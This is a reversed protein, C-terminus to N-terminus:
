AVREGRDQAEMTRWSENTAGRLAIGDVPLLISFTTGHREDSTRSHFRITGGNKELLQRTVWLGIGTGVDHKTTFLPEFIHPKVQPRIGSGNDSVSIRVRGPAAPSVRIKIIGQSSIADIANALLNSFIQRLEGPIATITIQEPAEIELHVQKMRLKNRFLEIVENLVAAVKFQQPTATERYFGLAQRTIHSVRQLEDDAMDLFPKLSAPCDPSTRAIFVANVVAALPNNIEHALSLAMRGLAAIKESRVLVEQTRKQDQIDTTTGFWLPDAGPESIPVARGLHWRYEGDRRLLRYETEFIGHTAVARNWRALSAARDDPHVANVWGGNANEQAGTGTYELWKPSLYRFHTQADAVWVMPPINEAVARFRKESERLARETRKLETIDAFSFRLLRREPLHHVTQHFVLTGSHVERLISHGGATRLAELIAAGDTFIAGPRNVAFLERLQLRAATNAYTLHGELDTEVIPNPNLEPFSALHEREQEARKHATIDEVVAIEYDPRGVADRALSVTLRAWVTRGQKHLFRKEISYSDIEGNAMRRFPALDAALDDPHTIQPWPTSRMEERTYGLMNCLADNADMWRADSFNVRGMGVAAGQFAARFKEESARLQEEVQKRRSIDDAIAIFHQPVGAGNRLLSVTLKVWVQAGSSRLYRKEITYASIEGELLRRAQIEDTAADEPHTLDQFRLRLLEERTYGLIRCYADNLRLWHGSLAVHAVGLPSEDFTARYREESQRLADLDRNHQTIDRAAASAGVIRGSADRLPSVTLQVDIVEGDKRRRHAEIQSVAEGGAVRQLITALDDQQGPPLLMSVNRGVTEARTYGYLIEAGRNWSTITGDLTKGLIADDSDEIIAALEHSRRQAAKLSGILLLLLLAAAAQLGLRTLDSDNTYSFSHTPQMVFYLVGATSLLLTLTGAAFDAIWAVLVAALVGFIFVPADAFRSSAASFVVATVSGAVPLVFRAIRYHRRLFQEANTM